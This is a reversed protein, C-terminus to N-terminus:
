RIFNNAQIIFTAITMGDSNVPFSQLNKLALYWDKAM